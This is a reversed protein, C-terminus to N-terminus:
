SVVNKTLVVLPRDAREWNCRQHAPQLNERRDSGGQARPIKHDVTINGKGGNSVRNGKTVSAPVPEGCLACLIIGGARIYAKWQKRLISTQSSM